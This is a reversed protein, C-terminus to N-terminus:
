GEAGALDLWTLSAFEGNTLGLADSSTAVATRFTHSDAGDRVVIEVGASTTLSPSFRIVLISGDDSGGAVSWHSPFLSRVGTGRRVFEGNKWRDVGAIRKETGNATAFSVIDRLSLPDTTRLEYSCRPRLRDGGLWFPFNTAGIRWTGPLLEALSQEDPETPM